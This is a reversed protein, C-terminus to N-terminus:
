LVVIGSRGPAMGRRLPGLLARSDRSLGSFASPAAALARRNRRTDSVLLIVHEIAGDRQKLALRREVAQLDDLATEAEVAIRWGDGHILADWARKDGEVPLPVETRWHLDAAIQSRLRRLLRQQGADRIPDGAAYARLRLELGVAAAMEALLRLDPSETAGSITRAATSGAVHCAAGISDFSLGTALRATGIELRARHLDEDIRRAARAVPGSRTAVVGDHDLCTAWRNAAVERM